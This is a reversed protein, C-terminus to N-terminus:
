AGAAAAATGAALRRRRARECRGTRGRCRQAGPGSGNHGAQARHLVAGRLCNPCLIPCLGWCIHDYRAFCPTALCSLRVSAVKGADDSEEEDTAAAGSAEETGHVEAGEEDAEAAPLPFVARTDDIDFAVELKWRGAAAHDASWVPSAPGLGLWRIGSHSVLVESGDAVAAFSSDSGTKDSDSNAAPALRLVYVGELGDSEKM